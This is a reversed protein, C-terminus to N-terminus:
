SLRDNIVQFDPFVLCKFFSFKLEFGQEIGLFIGKVPIDSMTLSIWSLNIVLCNEEEERAKRPYMFGLYSPLEAILNWIIM